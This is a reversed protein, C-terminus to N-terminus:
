ITKMYELFNAELHRIRLSKPHCSRFTKEPLLPHKLKCFQNSTWGEITSFEIDRFLNRIRGDLHPGTFFMCVDPKLIGIEEILLDDFKSIAEEYKGFPRGADLDFKNINTWVCSYPANGIAEEIKRTINWFPTSYYNKGLNFDRYADLQEDINDHYYTWGHTQQGIIM